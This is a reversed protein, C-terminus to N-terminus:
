SDGKGLHNKFWAVTEETARKLAVTPATVTSAAGFTHGSRVLLLRIANKRNAAHYLRLAESAPVPVDATGNVILYPTKLRAVAKTLDFRRYQEEIDLLYVSGVRLVTQTASDTFEIAGTERWRKKQEESFVDPHAPTGWSAIATVRPCEIANLIVSVGARSHGFLAIPLARDVAGDLGDEQIHRLLFALDACERSITNMSFLDPECYRVTDAGAGGAAITGNHSFDITAAAYGAMGLREALYPFFGWSRYGKFGPCLVCIGAPEPPLYLDARVPYEDGTAVLITTTRIHTM